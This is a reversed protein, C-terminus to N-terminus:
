HQIGHLSPPTTEPPVFYQLHLMSDPTHSPTPGLYISDSRIIPDPQLAIDVQLIEDEWRQSTM